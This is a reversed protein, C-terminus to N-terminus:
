KEKSIEKHKVIENIATRQIAFRTKSSITRERLHLTCNSKREKERMGERGEGGGGRKRERERGKGRGEREFDFGNRTTERRYIVGVKFTKVTM